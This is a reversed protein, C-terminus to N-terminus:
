QLIIKRIVFTTNGTLEVFYVGRSFASVDIMQRFDHPIDNLSRRFVTQGRIDNIRLDMQKDEGIVAINLVGEAPNPYVSIKTESKNEPIGVCIKVTINKVSPMGSGCTNEGKVAITDSSAGPKITVIISNTGIGSIISTGPPVTWDYFTAETIEPVTYNYTEYNSCVTDYGTIMGAPGPVTELGIQRTAPMSVGCSNIAVVSIYGANDGWQVNVSDTNQGNIIKADAPVMWFYSTAYLVPEVSFTINEGNCAQGPGQIVAPQSPVNTVIVELVSPNSIGCQNGAIVSIIGGTNGWQITVSPSNQGNLILAGAPVMWSYSSAFPVDQVTYVAISDQCIMVPGNINGPSNPAPVISILISDSATHSVSDTVHVHYLTNVLPSAVPNAIHPDNLGTSPTWSFSFPQKGRITRANLQSSEGPCISDPTATAVVYVSDGSLVLITANRQHVPTGDPSQAFFKVQYFGLPVNGILKVIAPLSDPYSTIRNGSPFFVTITGSDPVPSITDSLIVTDTYLKVQPISISFRISDLNTFLTDITHDIAMAFDPFYGTTSMFDGYRFDTWSLMAVKKNSCIGNYDGEYSPNGGGNCTTCNIIMKQNSIRENTAFTEGGDESYTAYIYASDHTPTDRTDMWQVYLRGNDKDCWVAPQWQSNNQSDPDDNVIKASSWTSGGDDSYRSFIDPLNGNGPPNNSTYVLYLRGRHAGYSNDAVILPYPRTWMGSVANKGNIETGVYNSFQEISMKTFTLGGDTSRYFTYISAFQTGSNTVVFVSGGQINSYPGVCVMMGPITQSAPTFTSSFTQGHDTSRSFNGEGNNTMCTYINNANPGNTQDCTLWPKDTGTLAIIGPGWTAGNDNSKMVMLGLVINTGFMNGYFLNGLSDYAMVPDGIITAGFNPVESGWDIGNNTPHGANTNYATFYWSPIAPNATINTTAFDVGLDFNDWNGITIVSSTTSNNSPVFTKNWSSRPLQDSNPDQGNQCFLRLSFLSLVFIMIFVSIVPMIRGSFIGTNM